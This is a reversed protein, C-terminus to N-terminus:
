LFRKGGYYITECHCCSFLKTLIFNFQDTCVACNRKEHEKVTAETIDHLKQSIM